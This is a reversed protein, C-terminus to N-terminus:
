APLPRAATVPQPEQDFRAYALTWATSTYAKIWALLALAASVWVVAGVAGFVVALTLGGAFYAAAVVGVLPLAAVLVAVGAATAALPGIIALLLWVVAVRGFRRRILALGSRLGAIPRQGDLVVARTGLLLVVLFVILSPIALLILFGALAGAAIALAIQHAFASSVVVLVLSGIVVVATLAALLGVLKVQLVAWFTQLGSRFAERLSYPRGRDHEAAGRVLAGDAVASIALCVVMALVLGAAAVWLLAAHAGMWATFQAWGASANAFGHNPGGARNGNNRGGWNGLTLSGGEGAFLALLWLYKHRWTISFARTLVEGYNM